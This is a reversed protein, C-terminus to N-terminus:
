VWKLSDNNSKPKSGENKRKRPWIVYEEFFLFQQLLNLVEQQKSSEWLKKNMVETILRSWIMFLIGRPIKLTDTM